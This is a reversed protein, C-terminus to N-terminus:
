SFSLFALFAFAAAVGLSTAIAMKQIEGISGLIGLLNWVIWCATGSKQRSVCYVFAGFPVPIYMLTKFNHYIDTFMEYM